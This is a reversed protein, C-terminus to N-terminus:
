DGVRPVSSSITGEPTLDGGGTLMQLINIDIDGADFLMQQAVQPSIIGSTVYLAITEARRKQITALELNEAVDQDGYKFSVNRPMIGHFNMDHEMTAVFLAPGKGRSKLHLVESQQSTGLNGGPLPAFDQYDAGFALALKSIYWKNATDEDFGDPLGAMDISYGGVTTTPDVTAVVLPEIYHTLGESDALARQQEMADLVANRGVGNIIHIQHHRRGSVKEGMFTSTDRIRQAETLIRTLVCYQMGRASEINSPMDTVSQVQYWMLHHVDGYYDIYDIPQDYLGTRICRGADLTNLQVCPATPDNATRIIEYHGGNDQTFVDILLRSVFTNWGKGHESNHLIDRVRTRVRPPGELSWGFAAYRSITTFLAGLFTTEKPFFLRLEADRQRPNAGWPTLRDAVSALNFIVEGFGGAAGLQGRPPEKVVSNLNNYTMM